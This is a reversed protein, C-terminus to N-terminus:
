GKYFKLSGVYMTSNGSFFTWGNSNSPVSITMAVTSKLVSNIYLKLHTVNATVEIDYEGSPISTASVTAGGVITFTITGTTTASVALNCASNKYILYKGAGATTDVFCDDILFQFHNGPELTDDDAVTMGGAGPFYCLKGGTVDKCYLTATDGISAGISDVFMMWPNTSYGPMFAIDTGSRNRIACNSASSNLFGGAILNPTSLGTINTSVNTATTGNNSITITGYFDANTIDSALVDYAAILSIVALFATICLIKRLMM